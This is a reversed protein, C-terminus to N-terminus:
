EKDTGLNSLLETRLAPQIKDPAKRCRSIPNHPKEEKGLKCPPNCQDIKSLQVLM